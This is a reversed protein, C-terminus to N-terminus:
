KAEEEEDEESDSSLDDSDSGSKISETKKGRWQLNNSIGLIIKSIKLNHSIELGRLIRRKWKEVSKHTKDLLEYTIKCNVVARV